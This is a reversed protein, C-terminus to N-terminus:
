GNWEPSKGAAILAAQWQADHDATWEASQSLTSKMGAIYSYLSEGAALLSPLNSLFLTIIASMIKTKESNV